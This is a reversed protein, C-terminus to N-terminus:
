TNATPGDAPGVTGFENPTEAWMSVDRDAVVGPDSKPEVLSRRHKLVNILGVATIKILGVATILPGPLGIRLFILTGFMGSSTNVEGGLEGGFFLPTYVWPCGGILLLVLGVGVAGAASWLEKHGPQAAASGFEKPRSALSAAGAALLIPGLLLASNLPNPGVGWPRIPSLLGITLLLGLGLLVIPM